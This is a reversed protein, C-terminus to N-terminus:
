FSQIPSIRCTHITANETLYGAADLIKDIFSERHLTTKQSQALKFAYADIADQVSGDICKGVSHPLFHKVVGTRDQRM